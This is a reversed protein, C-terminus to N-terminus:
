QRGGALYRGTLDLKCQPCQQVVPRGLLGTRGYYCGCRPCRMGWTAWAIVAGGDIFVLAAAWDFGIRVLCIVVGLTLPISFGLLLTTREIKRLRRSYSADSPEPSEM